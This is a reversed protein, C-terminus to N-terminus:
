ADSEDLSRKRDKPSTTDIREGALRVKFPFLKLVARCQGNFMLYTNLKM